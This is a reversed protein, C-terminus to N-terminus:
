KGFGWGGSNSYGGINLSSSLGWGLGNGYGYGGGPYGGGMYPYGGYGGRYGHHGYGHGYGGGYGGGYGYGGYGYHRRARIHPTAPSETVEDGIPEASLVADAHHEEAPLAAPDREISLAEGIQPEETTTVDSTPEKVSPNDTPIDEAALSYSVAVFLLVLFNLNM